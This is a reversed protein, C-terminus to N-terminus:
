WCDINQILLLLFFIDCIKTQFISNVPGHFIARLQVPISDYHILLGLLATRKGGRHYKIAWHPNLNPDRLTVSYSFLDGLLGPYSESTRSSDRSASSVTVSDASDHARDASRRFLLGTTGPEHRQIDTCKGGGHFEICSHTTKDPDDSDAHPKQSGLTEKLNSPESLLSAYVSRYGNVPRFVGFSTKERHLQQQQQQTTQKDDVTLLKVILSGLWM